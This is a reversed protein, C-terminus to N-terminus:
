LIQHSCYPLFTLGFQLNCIHDWLQMFVNWAASVMDQKEALQLKASTAAAEAEQQAQKLMQIATTSESKAAAKLAEAQKALANREAVEAGLREQMAVHRNLCRSSLLQSSPLNNLKRTRRSCLCIVSVCTANGVQCAQTLHASPLIGFRCPSCHQTQMRWRENLRMEKSRLKFCSLLQRRVKKCRCGHELCQMVSAKGYQATPTLLYLSDEEAVSSDALLAESCYLHLVPAQLELEYCQMDHMFRVKMRLDELQDQLEKLQQSNTEAEQQQVEALHLAEELEEFRCCLFIGECSTM